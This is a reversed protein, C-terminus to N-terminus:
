RVPASSRGASGAGAALAGALNYRALRATRAVGHTVEALAAQEVPLFGSVDGASPNLTGIVGVVFLPWFTTSAAFGIGTGFMLCSAALLVTRRELRGGAVGVAASGLLTGAVIAGVELPGLGLRTLHEALVVSVLGDIWGRLARVAVVRTSGSLRRAGGAV